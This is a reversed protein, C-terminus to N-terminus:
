TAVSFEFDSLKFKEVLLFIEIYEIIISYNQNCVNLIQPDLCTIITFTCTNVPLKRCGQFLQQLSLPFLAWLEQHLLAFMKVTLSGVTKIERTMFAPLFSINCYSIILRQLKKHYFFIQFKTVQNCIQWNNKTSKIDM